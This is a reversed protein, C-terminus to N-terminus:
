DSHKKMRSKGGQTTFVHVHQEVFFELTGYRLQTRKSVNLILRGNQNAYSVNTSWPQVM